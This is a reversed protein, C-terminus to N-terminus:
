SSVGEGQRREDWGGYVCLFTLREQAPPNQGWQSLFLIFWTERDSFIVQDTEDFAFFLSVPGRTKDSARVGLFVSVEKLALELLTQSPHPLSVQLGGSGGFESHSKM